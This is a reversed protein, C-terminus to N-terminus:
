HWQMEGIIMEERPVDNKVRLVLTQDGHTSTMAIEMQHIMVVNQQLRTGNIERSM